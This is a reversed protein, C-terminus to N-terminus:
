TTQIDTRKGCALPNEVVLQVLCRLAARSAHNTKALPIVDLGFPLSPQSMTGNEFGPVTIYPMYELHVVGSNLYYITGNNAANYGDDAEVFVCGDISVAAVSSEGLAASTFGGNAPQIFYRQADFLAVVQNFVKPNCFALNPRMGSAIKIDALDDRVQAKTLATLSGSGKVTSRFYTETSRDLGAYTNSDDIASDLGIISNSGSGSFIDTEIKKALKEGAGLMNRAWLAANGAPNRSHAAQTLALDTVHFPSEYAGFGLSASKQGDSGFDVIAAGESHTQAIHGDTLVVWQPGSPNMSVRAPLMSAATASRNFGKVLEDAYLSALKILSTTQPTDAM